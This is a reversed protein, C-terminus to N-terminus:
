RTRSPRDDAGEEGEALVMPAVAMSPFQEPAKEPTSAVPRRFIHCSPQNSRGMMSIPIELWGGTAPMALMKTSREGALTPGYGILMPRAIKWFIGLGEEFFDRFSIPVIRLKELFIGNTFFILPIKRIM